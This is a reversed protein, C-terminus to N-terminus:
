NRRRQIWRSPRNNAQAAVVKKNIYEFQANRDPHHSGEDAKRNSQRSFGLTVLLKRLGAPHGMATLVAALTNAPPPRWGSHSVSGPSRGARRTSGAVSPSGIRGKIQTDFLRLFGKPCRRPTSIM